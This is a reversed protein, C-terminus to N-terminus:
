RNTPHFIITGFLDGWDIMLACQGDNLMTRSDGLTLNYIDHPHGYKTTENYIRLAEIFGENM